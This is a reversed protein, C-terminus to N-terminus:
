SERNMLREVINTLSQINSHLVTLMERIQNHWLIHAGLAPADVQAHCESCEHMM